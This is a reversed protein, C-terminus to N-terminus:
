VDDESAGLRDELKKYFQEREYKIARRLSIIRIMDDDKEVFVAVVVHGRLLGIGRIRVEGYDFREDPLTWM